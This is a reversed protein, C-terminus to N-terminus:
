KFELNIVNKDELVQTNDNSSENFLKELDTTSMDWQHKYALNNKQIAEMVIDVVLEDEDLMQKEEESLNIEISKVMAKETCDNVKLPKTYYIYNDEGRYWLNEDGYNIIVSSNSLIISNFNEVKPYVFAFARLYVDCSGNNNFKLNINYLDENYESTINIKSAQNKYLFTKVIYFVSDSYILAYSFFIITILYIFFLIGKKNKRIKFKIKNIM